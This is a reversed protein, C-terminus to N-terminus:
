EEEKQNPNTLEAEINKILLLPVELASNDDPTDDTYWDDGLYATESNQKIYDLLEKKAKTRETAVLKMISETHTEIGHKNKNEACFAVWKILNRIGDDRSNTSSALKEPMNELDVTQGVLWHTCDSLFEIKGDKIYSHCRFGNRYKGTPDHEPMANPNPDNWTLYSPAFTPKEYDGNFEWKETDVQHSEECGPCWFTVVSSNEVKRLVNM